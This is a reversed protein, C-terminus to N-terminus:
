SRGALSGQGAACCRGGIRLAARVERVLARGRRGDAVSPVVWATSEIHLDTSKNGKATAEHIVISLRIQKDYKMKIWGSMM